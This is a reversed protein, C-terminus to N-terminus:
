VVVVVEVTRFEMAWTRQLTLMRIEQHLRLIKNSM